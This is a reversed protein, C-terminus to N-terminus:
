KVLRRNSNTNSNTTTGSNTQPPTLGLREYYEANKSRREKEEKPKNTKVEDPKQREVPLEHINWEQNFSWNARLELLTGLYYVKEPQRREALNGPDFRGNGNADEILRAYYKGPAVNVFKAQGNEVNARQMPKDKENVLQIFAKGTVGRVNFLLHAYEETKKESFAIGCSDIPHGYIDFMAASDVRFRYSGGPSFHPDAHLIYRRLHTSDKEWVFKMPVWLSDKKAELHLGSLNCSDLPASVEFRPRRGIEISSSGFTKISMFVTKPTMPLSDNALSDSEAKASKKRKGKGKEKDSAKANEEKVIPKMFTLTDTKIIDIGNTDTQLYDVSLRLTDMSVYRPDRIWYSLTDFTANPEAVYWDDQQLTDPLQIESLLPNVLRITPLGPMPASFRLAFHLSDTRSYDDLYRNHRGENFMMLRLNSPYYDIVGRTIITDITTSDAWITDHAQRDHMTPVVISDLFAIDEDILDYRYNSNGDKLAYLRYKGPAIGNISFQGFQDTKAAREFGRRIFVSDALQTTDSYIGVYAGTIPELDAANLVLGSIKLSDIHDGTSFTFALGKLPNGENNDQVADALDITYTTNPLLSDLLEITVTKANSMVSPSKEQPPSVTMKEKVKDLKVNENFHLTFKNKTVGTAGDKPDSKRLEPPTEDYLGGGPSGISACGMLGVASLAIPLAWLTHQNHMITRFMARLYTM